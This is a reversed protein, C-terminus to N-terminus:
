IQIAIFRALLAASNKNYVSHFLLELGERLFPTSKFKQLMIFDKKQTKKLFSLNKNLCCFNVIINFKNNTFLSLVKFLNNLVGELRLSAVKSSDLRYKPSQLLVPINQSQCYKKLRYMNASAYSKRQVDNCTLFERKKISNQNAIVKKDTSSKNMLTLKASKENQKTIFESSIFYSIYLNLTSNSYHQKYDHLLLGQTELFRQIYSKIELDKFTYTPLEQRKKEFFETKWNKNVGLRFINPNIKQGM